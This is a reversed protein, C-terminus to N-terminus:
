KSQSWHSVRSLLTKQSRIQWKPSKRTLDSGIDGVKSLMINQGAQMSEAMMAPQEKLLKQGVPSAYFSIVADLDTKTLHRQYIPIM